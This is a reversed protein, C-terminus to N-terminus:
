IESALAEQNEEALTDKQKEGLIEDLLTVLTNLNSPKVIFKAGYVTCEQDISADFTSSYMFIESGQLQPMQRLEKLCTIGNVRPMNVDIFIVDPILTPDSRLRNIAAIASDAKHCIITKDIESLAMCFIEHDETDDDILFCQKM